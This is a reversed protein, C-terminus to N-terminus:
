SRYYPTTVSTLLPQNSPVGHTNRINTMAWECFGTRIPSFTTQISQLDVGSKGNGVTRFYCLFTAKWKLTKKRSPDSVANDEAPQHYIELLADTTFTNFPQKLNVFNISFNKMERGNGDHSM